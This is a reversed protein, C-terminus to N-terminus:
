CGSARRKPPPLHRRILPRLAWMLGPWVFIIFLAETLQHWDGAPTHPNVLDLFWVTLQRTAIMASVFIIWPCIKGRRAEATEDQEPPLLGVRSFLSCMVNFWGYSCAAGCFTLVFIEVPGTAGTRWLMTGTWLVALVVAGWKLPATSILTM